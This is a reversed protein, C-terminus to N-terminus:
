ALQEEASLADFAVEIEGEETSQAGEGVFWANRFVITKDNGHVLQVTTDVTDRMAAVDLDSRDTIVGEIHAPIVTEKYGHVRDAGAITERNVGGLNYSFNGKADALEGNVYLQIRGARRNSAM